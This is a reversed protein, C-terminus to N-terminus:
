NPKIVGQEVKMYKVEGIADKLHHADTTTIITQHDQVRNLLHARRSEDLESFVDDLLLVPNRNTQAKLYEVETLKLSLITTRCEGRSGFASVSKQDLEFVFDERHPGTSTSGVQIDRDLRKRLSTRLENQIDKDSDVCSVYSMKLIEADGSLEQYHISLRQNYFDIMQFRHKVINSGHDTLEKDWFVLEDVSAHHDRINSLIKNRM